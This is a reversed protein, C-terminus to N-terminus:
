STKSRRSSPANRGKALKLRRRRRRKLISPRNRTYYNKAAFRQAMRKKRCQRCFLRESGSPEFRRGCGPCTALAKAGTIAFLLQIALAGLLRAGGLSIRLRGAHEGINPRADGVALWQRLMLILGAREHEIAISLKEPKVDYFNPNGPFVREWEERAGLEGALLKRTITIMAGAQAALFRWEDVSERYENEPWQVHSDTVLKGSRLPRRWPFTTSTPLGQVRHGLMGWRKAFGLIARDSENSLLVFGALLGKGPVVEELRLVGGPARWILVGRELTVQKPV